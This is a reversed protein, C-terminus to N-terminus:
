VERKYGVLTAWAVAIAIKVPTEVDVLKQSEGLSAPTNFGARTTSEYRPWEGLEPHSSTM